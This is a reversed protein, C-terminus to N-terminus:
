KAPKTASSTAPSPTTQEPILGITTVRQPALYEKALATVDDKTAAKFDDVISRAWTLREPHEQCNRLVNKIWYTNDRRMQVLQQLLPERARQFEDDTIGGESLAKGIEVYMPKVKAVQEPKLTSMATMYGYGTYTDSPVHYGVPSYTEGLEQRIKIRLRDDMIQGLLSLRRARQINSMDATPWYALAYARPIESTFHFDKDHPEAPFKVEREKAYAPKKDARKPLAGFTSELDKLVTDADVDGVVAIEMYSDRLAPMLWDKVESMKRQAMVGQTPFEFRSDDGHIFGVVKNQMVGEATHDLQTYIADLNKDFQRQAEERFGPAVVYACMYQLEDLLDKPTTRGALIFSDDGVAFDVGVSKSAFIRRLEDVNHKELGGLQFVSQTLPILGPKDSPASLKGGGFSVMIRVGNKEFDTKKVNVRVGNEFAAQTVELDKQETRSAVKGAPGFKTYAFTAGEDQKPAAVPVKQSEHFAAIITEPANELKLNGGIYIEIDKNEWAKRMAGVCEDSTLSKLDAEVRPVDDAPDTFVREAAIAQVLTDALTSNKRTDKQEAHVHVAKLLTARAEEFEAKTFGHELARRLEQEAVFLSEKWHEPKCKVGVGDSRIFKFMEFNYSEAEMFPSNEKKALESFRQNLMADALSRVVKTRRQAASDPAKSADSLVEISIETAPAEMETKLRAILGRGKTVDGLNPDGSDAEAPKADGFMKKILGEALPIDVDGAVVVTARKPTYWKHYFDVFRKQQMKKITDELGIPFRRSLLADPMAFHYEDLELREEVSDRALKESLIVGRERDIEKEQLLMGDLDDRFLQLAESLMAEDVRPLELKYVTEKFSTHANTDAGFGMGLRQFREVMTGPPFHKSGNFAMHELFHAMGQQDDEEMLSGANMYLRLSARGPMPVKNPFIVYRLGNDLTGWVAKGEPKLDSHQQPWDAKLVTTSCVLLAALLPGFPRFSKLIM